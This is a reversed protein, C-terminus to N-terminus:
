LPQPLTAEGAAKRVLLSRRPLLERIVGAGNGSTAEAWREVLIWDGVTPLERKDAARHFAKGTLEVWALAGAEDLAHHAGRHEAAIRVPTLAGAADVAHQAASWREDWGLNM